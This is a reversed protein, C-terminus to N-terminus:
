FSNNMSSCATINLGTANHASTTMHNIRCFLSHSWLEDFSTFPNVSISMRAGQLEDKKTMMLLQEEAMKMADGLCFDVYKRTICAKVSEQIM